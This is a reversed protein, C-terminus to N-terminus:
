AAEVIYESTLTSGALDLDWRGEGADVFELKPYLDSVLENRPGAVYIGRLRDYGLGIAADALHALLHQEATRGIVRCSLLLTDVVATTPEEPDPVAIAVGVIGHQAFRDELEITRCITRPEAALREIQEPTRRVLTLNFQNTKQTLQAARELTKAEVPRVRGRMELSRWFDPLSAVELRLADAHRRAAYSSTRVRDETSLWSAELHVHGELTRIFESPPMTLPVTAVMPLASAVQACEAPNDDLLILADLGLGLTEAIEAIQASKPRWDAVFAEFHELRLRMSPNREFPERAAALDNKSAVALLLGRDRLALLYEQFAAFAEGEAGDGIVIGEPGEEGVVGGWLTNDLDVIICRPALGVDGALVAATAKALSPLAEYSFPQRATYWLRPDVWRRKGLTAAIREVDVLLVTSGAEAGLRANLERVLSLRTGPMRLALHGLPSEDPVVFGHQVVRTALRSGLADWLSRWRKVEATVAGEPNESLSPFSLDATTPAVLVHSPAFQVLGSNVGLAEQELQGYPAAYVDLAIGFAACAVRVHEVFETSEYSCLLALRVERRCSPAWGQDTATRRFRCALGWIAPDDDVLLSPRLLAWADEYRGERVLGRVADRIGGAALQSSATAASDEAPPLLEIDNPTTLEM